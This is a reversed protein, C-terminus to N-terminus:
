YKFLAPTHNLVKGNSDKCNQVNGSVKSVDYGNKVPTEDTTYTYVDDPFLKGNVVLNMVEARWGTKSEADVYPVYVGREKHVNAEGAEASYAGNLGAFLSTCNEGLKITHDQADLHGTFVFNEPLKEAPITIDKTLIFYDGHHAGGEYAQAFKEIWTEDTLYQRDIGDEKEHGSENYYGGDTVNDGSLTSGCTYARQWSSGAKSLSHNETNDIGYWDDENETAVWLASGSANYDVQLRSIRLYVVTQYDADLDFEVLKNYALGNSLTLDFEIQNKKGKYQEKTISRLDEDYMVSDASTYTPRVILDYVPVKNNYEVGDRQEVGYVTKTIKNSALQADTLVNYEAWKKDTPFIYSQSKDDYFMIFKENLVNGEGDLSGRMGVFHPIVKRQKQWQPTLVHTDNSNKTDEVGALVEVNNFSIATSSPESKGDADLTFGKLTVGKMDPDILVYAQVRALRHRFPLKIRGLTASIHTNAPMALYRTLLTYNDTEGDKSQDSLIDKASTTNVSALEKRSEESFASGYRIQEPVYVGEFYHAGNDYWIADNNTGKYKFSYIAWRTIPDTAYPDDNTGLQLKLIAVNRKDDGTGSIVKGYTIDLGDKLPGVLWPVLEADTGARTSGNDVSIDLGFTEVGGIQIKEGDEFEEVADIVGNQILSEKDSCSAAAFLISFIYLVKKM